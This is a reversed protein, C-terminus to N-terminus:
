NVGGGPPSHHEIDLYYPLNSEFSFNDSFQVHTSKLRNQVVFSSCVFLWVCGVMVLLLQATLQVTTANGLAVAGNDNTISPM